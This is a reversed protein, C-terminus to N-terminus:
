RKGEGVVRAEFHEAFEKVRRYNIGNQGRYGAKRRSNVLQRHKGAEEKTFLRSHFMAMTREIHTEPNVNERALLAEVFNIGAYFFNQTAAIMWGINGGQAYNGDAERGLKILARGADTHMRENM